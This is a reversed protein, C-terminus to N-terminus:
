IALGLQAAACLLAVCSAMDSIDAMEYATHIYRTPISVGGSPVGGRSLSVAGADTGGDELIEYQHPIGGDRACQELHKVALPHCLVSSDMLKIAAGGGLRCENKLKPEPVDLADTVDVALSLDPEIAFAATRAGRLGVEEQVTFVFWLDNQPDKMRALTELLIACGAYNDLYPSVLRGNTQFPQGCFRARDGTKVSSPASGGIDIYGHSLKLDKLGPKEEFRVVGRTGDTFVVPAGAIDLPCLGGVAAFRVFGEKDIHTALFGVTDMHACLMLKPGDAKKRAILNGLTDTYVEDAYPRAAEALVRGLAAEDGSVSGVRLFSEIYQILNMM